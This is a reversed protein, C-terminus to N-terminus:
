MIKIQAEAFRSILGNYLQSKFAREAYVSSIWLMVKLEVADAAISNIMIEPEAGKVQDTSRELEERIIKTVKAMDATM